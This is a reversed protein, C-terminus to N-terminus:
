TVSLGLATIRKNIINAAYELKSQVSGSTCSFPLGGIVAMHLAIRACVMSM